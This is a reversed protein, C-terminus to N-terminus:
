TQGALYRAMFGSLNESGQEEEANALLESPRASRVDNGFGQIGDLQGWLSDGNFGWGQKGLEKEGEFGVSGDSAGRRGDNDASEDVDEEEEKRVEKKEEESGGKVEPPTVPLRSPRRRPRVDMFLVPKGPVSEQKPVPEAEVEDFPPTVIGGSGIALLGTQDEGTSRYSSLEPLTEDMEDIGALPSQSVVDLFDFKRDRDEDKL